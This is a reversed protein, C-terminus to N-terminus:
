IAVSSSDRGSFKTWIALDAQALTNNPYDIAIQKSVLEAYAIYRELNSTVKVEIGKSAMYKVMHTDIVPINANPRSHLIFFAATKPGIGKINVLDNFLVTDLQESIQNLLFVVRGLRNYQGIKHKKLLDKIIDVYNRYKDETNPPTQYQISITTWFTPDSFLADVKKATMDSNKGAVSVAFVAFEFLERWGRSYNIIQTPIIM